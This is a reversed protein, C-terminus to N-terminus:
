FFNELLVILHGFDPQIVHQSYIMELAQVWHELFVRTLVERTIFGLAMEM